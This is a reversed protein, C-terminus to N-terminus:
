PQANPRSAGMPVGALWRKGHFLSDANSFARVSDTVEIHLSISDNFWRQIRRAMEYYMSSSGSVTMSACSLLVACTFSVGRSDFRQVTGSAVSGECLFVRKRSCLSFSLRAHGGMVARVAALPGDFVAYSNEVNVVLFKGAFRTM